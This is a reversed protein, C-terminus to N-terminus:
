DAGAAEALREALLERCRAESTDLEALAADIDRRQQELKARKRALVDLYYELQRRQGNPRDYLIFTERIEDLTFGLRKGRLILKLRARERPSYIRRQGQRTPNLLGRDQYFRIARTTIGFERALDGISYSQKSM